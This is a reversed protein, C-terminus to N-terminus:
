KHRKSASCNHQLADHCSTDDTKQKNTRGDTQWPHITALRYTAPFCKKCSYNVKHRLDIPM